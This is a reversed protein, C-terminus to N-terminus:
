TDDDARVASVRVQDSDIDGVVFGWGIPAVTDFTYREAVTRMDGVVIQGQLEATMTVAALRGTTADGMWMALHYGQERRWTDLDPM